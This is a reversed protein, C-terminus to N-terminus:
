NAVPGSCSVVAGAGVGMIDVPIGANDPACSKACTFPTSMPLAGGAPLKGVLKGGSAGTGGRFSGLPKSNAVACCCAPCKCNPSKGAPCNGAPGEGAPGSGPKPCAKKGFCGSVAGGPGKAAGGPGSV